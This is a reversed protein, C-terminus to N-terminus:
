SNVPLGAVLKEFGAWEDDKGIARAIRMPADDSWTRALYGALLPSISQHSLDHRDDSM